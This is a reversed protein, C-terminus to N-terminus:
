SALPTRRASHELPPLVEQSSPIAALPPTPSTGLAQHLEEAAEKSFERILAQMELETDQQASEHYSRPMDFAAMGDRMAKVELAYDFTTTGLSEEFGSRRKDDVANNYKEMLEVISDIKRTKDSYAKRARKLTKRAYIYDTIHTEALDMQNRQGLVEKALYKSRECTAQLQVIANRTDSIEKSLRPVEDRAKLMAVEEESLPERQAPQEAKPLTIVPNEYAAKDLKYKALRKEYARKEEQYKRQLDENDHGHIFRCWAGHKKPYKPAEPQVPMPGRHMQFQREEPEEAQPPPQPPPRQAQTAQYLIAAAPTCRGMPGTGYNGM